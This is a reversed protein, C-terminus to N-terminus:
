AFRCTDALGLIRYSRRNSSLGYLLALIRFVSRYQPKSVPPISGRLCGLLMITDRLSCPKVAPSVATRPPPITSALHCLIARSQTRPVIIHKIPHLDWDACTRRHIVRPVCDLYVGRLACAWIPTTLWKRSLWYLSLVTLHKGVYAGQPRAPYPKCVTAFRTVCTM